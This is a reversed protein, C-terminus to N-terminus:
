LAKKVREFFSQLALNGKESNIKSNATEIKEILSKLGAESFQGVLYAQLYNWRAEEWKSQEGYCYALKIYTDSTAKERSEDLMKEFFSVAKKYNKEHYVLITTEAEAVRDALNAYDEGFEDVLASLDLKAQRYDKNLSLALCRQLRVDVLDRRSIKFKLLEDALSLSEKGEGAEILLPLAQLMVAVRSHADKNSKIEKYLSLAKETEGMNLHCLFMKHPVYNKYIKTSSFRKKSVATNENKCKELLAMAQSWDGKAMLSLASEYLVPVDEYLVDFTNWARGDQPNEDGEFMGFVLTESNDDVVFVVDEQEKFGLLDQYDSLERAVRAKPLDKAVAVSPILMMSLVFSLFLCRLNRLAGM